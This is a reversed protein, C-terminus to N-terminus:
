ELFLARVERQHVECVPVALGHGSPVARRGVAAGIYGDTAAHLATTPNSRTPVAAASIAPVATATADGATTRRAQSLWRWADHHRDCCFCDVTFPKYYEYDSRISTLAKKAGWACRVTYTDVCLTSVILPVNVADWQKRAFRSTKVM